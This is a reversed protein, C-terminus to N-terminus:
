SGSSAATERKRLWLSAGVGIEDDSFVGRFAEPRRKALYSVWLALEFAGNYQLFARLLYAENWARGEYVWPRPYEFPYYVDHFHVYVGDALAPLLRFVVHNVDSDTKVVHSSDVFLVDGPGLSAFRDTELEQVRRPVVEVRERDAPTLLAELRDPYPDVFTCELRGDLFRENTDLVLASSYGSGIELLRRPRLEVLLCHLILADQYGFQDNAAYYRRGPRPERALDAHAAHALLRTALAIQAESRLDVGPVAEPFAFIEDERSRIDEPDPFPSYFHGPPMWLRDSGGGDAEPRARGLRQALRALSSRM